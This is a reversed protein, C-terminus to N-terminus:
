QSKEAIRQISVRLQEASDALSQPVVRTNAITTMYNTDGSWRPRWRPVIHLHIHDAIGAGAVQGINMGLNIGEAGLAEQLARVCWQAIQMLEASEKADLRTLDDVHRRPVVMLHGSNYPFTNLLVCNHTGRYLVYNAIDDSAALKECLVCKDPKESVVYDLRWPAWIHEM